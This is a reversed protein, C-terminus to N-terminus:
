LDLKYVNAMGSWSGSVNVVKNVTAGNQPNTITVTASQSLAPVQSFALLGVLPILSGIAGRSLSLSSEQSISIDEGRSM